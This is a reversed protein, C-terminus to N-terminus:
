PTKDQDDAVGKRPNTQPLLYYGDRPRLLKGQKALEHLIGYFSAKPVGRKIAVHVVMKPSFEVTPFAEQIIKLVTAHHTGPKGNTRKPKPEGETKVAKRPEAALRSVNLVMTCMVGEIRLSRDLLDALGDKTPVTLTVSYM